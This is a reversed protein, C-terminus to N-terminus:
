AADPHLTSDYWGFPPAYTTGHEIALMRWGSGRRLEDYSPDAFAGVIVLSRAIAFFASHEIDHLVEHQRSTSLSSFGNRGGIRNARQDLDALGGRIVPVAESFFGTGLARDTFYVVGDNDARSTEDESPIICAAFDSM